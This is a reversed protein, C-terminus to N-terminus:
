GEESKTALSEFKSQSIDSAMNESEMALVTSSGLIFVFLGFLLAIMKKMNNGGNKMFWGQM